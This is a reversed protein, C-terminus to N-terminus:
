GVSEITAFVGLDPSFSIHLWNNYDKTSGNQTSTYGVYIDISFRDNNEKKQFEDAYFTEVDNWLLKDNGNYPHTINYELEVSGEDFDISHITFEWEYRNSSFQGYSGSDTYGIFDEAYLRCEKEENDTYYKLDWTDSDMYHQYTCTVTEVIYGYKQEHYFDIEITDLHAEQDPNHSVIEWTMPINNSETKIEDEEVIEPIDLEVVSDPVTLNLTDNASNSNFANSEQQNQETQGSPDQNTHCGACGISLVIALVFAFSEKIM